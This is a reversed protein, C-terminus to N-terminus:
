NKDKGRAIRLLDFADSLLQQFNPDDISLGLKAAENEILEVTKREDNYPGSTKSELGLLLDPQVDLAEAISAIEHDRARRKGLEIRNLVSQNIGTLEALKKQSWDRRERIKKIVSGTEM